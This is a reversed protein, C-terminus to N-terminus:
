FFFGKGYTGLMADVFLIAAVLLVTTFIVTGTMGTSTDAETVAVTQTVQVSEKRATRAPAEQRSRTTRTRTTKRAM